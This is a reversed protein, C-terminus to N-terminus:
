RSIMWVNFCFRMTLFWSSSLSFSKSSSLFVRCSVRDLSSRSHCSTSNRSFDKSLALSISWNCNPFRVWTHSKSVQLLLKYTADLPKQEYVIYINQKLGCTALKRLRGVGAISSVERFVQIPEKDKIPLLHGLQQVQLHFLQNNSKINIYTLITFSWELHNM